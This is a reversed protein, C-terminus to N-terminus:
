LAPGSGCGRNRCRCGARCPNRPANDHADDRSPPAGPAAAPLPLITPLNQITRAPRRVAAAPATVLPAPSVVAPPAAVVTGVPQGVVPGTIVTQAQAASAGIVLALAGCPLDFRMPREM